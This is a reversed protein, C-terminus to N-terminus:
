SLLFVFYRVRTPIDTANMPPSCQLKHNENALLAAKCAAWARLALNEISGAEMGKGMFADAVVAKNVIAEGGLLSVYTALSQRSDTHTTQADIARAITLGYDHYLGLALRHMDFAVKRIKEDALVKGLVERSRVLPSSQGKSRTKKGTSPISRSLRVCLVHTSTTFAIHTLVGQSGQTSAMGVLSGSFTHMAISDRCFDALQSEEVEVAVLDPHPVKYISDQLNVTSYAM